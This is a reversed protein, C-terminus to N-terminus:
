PSGEALLRQIWGIYTKIGGRKALELGRHLPREAANTQGARWCAEGLFAAMRVQGIVVQAGEHVPLPSALLEAGERARDARCM